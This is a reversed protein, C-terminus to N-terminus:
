IRPEHQTPREELGPVKAEQSLIAPATKKLSAALLQAHKELTKEVQAKEEEFAQKREEKSQQPEQRNANSFDMLENATPRARKTELFNRWPHPPCKCYKRYEPPLAMWHGTFMILNPKVIGHVPCPESLIAELEYSTHYRVVKGCTCGEQARRALLQDTRGELKTLRRRISDISITVTDGEVKASPARDPDTRLALDFRLNKV